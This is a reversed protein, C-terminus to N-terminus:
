EKMISLSFVKYEEDKSLIDTNGDCSVDGVCIIKNEFPYKGYHQGNVNGSSYLVHESEFKTGNYLEIKTSYEKNQLVLDNTGYGHFHGAGVIHWEPGDNPNHELEVQKLVNNDDMLLAFATGDKRQFLIDSKKDKNVDGTAVIEAEKLELPNVSEPLNIYELQVFPGVGLDKCM